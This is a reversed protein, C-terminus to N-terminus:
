ASVQFEQYGVATTAPRNALALYGKGVWNELGPSVRRGLLRGGDAEQFALTGLHQM